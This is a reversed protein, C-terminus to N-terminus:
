KFKGDLFGVLYAAFRTLYPKGEFEFKEKEAKTAEEYATKFKHYRNESFNGAITKVMKAVIVGGEREM